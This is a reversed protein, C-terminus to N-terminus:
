EIRRSNDFRNRDIRTVYPDVAASLPEKDVVVRIDQVGNQLSHKALYLSEGAADFVGIDISERMPVAKDRLEKTAAIRMAIEYKGNPLRRSTATDLKFDYLVVDNLWQDILPHHEAPAVAELHRIVDASTPHKESMLNRLATNVTTEGLLDKLAYMVLAGKRYYLYAQNDVRSLPPESESEGTRGSLYLDLEYTLSQRVQERGYAKELLMLECYKTLSETLMSDGPGDAPVLTYGFWQHAVEHAV